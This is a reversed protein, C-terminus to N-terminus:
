SGSYSAEVPLGGLSPVVVAPTGGYGDARLQAGSRFPYLQGDYAVYVTSAATLLTGNAVPAASLSAPVPGAVPLARDAMRLIARAVGGAPVAFARGGAMVFSGGGSVLIAGNSLTSVADAAPGEDGVTPGVALGGLNPVTVVQAPDYGASLLQAETAFGHLRGDAGEVYVTPNDFAVLLTGPAPPVDPVVAGPASPVVTARDVAEVGAAQSPTAVGFGHGGAFVYLTAKFSVIAAAPYTASAPPFGSGANGSAAVSGTIALNYPGPGPPNVVGRVVFTLVDGAAITYPVTFTVSGTGGGVVPLAVDGSGAAATIDEVYYDAAATPFVTGPAASLTVTAMGAAMNTAAEVASLTYTATSSPTTPSVDVVVSGPPAVVPYAPAPVPLTDASTSVEFDTVVAPAPNYVGALSVSVLDGARVPGAVPLSAHGDALTPADVAYRAGSTRDVVLIDSAASFDTSPQSLFIDGSSFGNATQFAVTYVAQTDAVDPSELVQLHTVGSTYAFSGSCPQSAGGGFQVAFAGSAGEGPNLGQASIDVSAGASLPESLHLVVAGPGDGYASTVAPAQVQTGGPAVEDVVYAQTEATWTVTGGGSAPGARLQVTDLSNAAPYATLGNFLYTSETGAQASTASVTAGLAGPVIEQSVSPTPNASTSVVFADRSSPAPAVFRISLADGVPVHCPSALYVWLGSAPSATAARLGGACTGNADSLTVAGASGSVSSPLVNDTVDISSGADLEATAVFSVVFATPAGPVVSTPAVALDGVAGGGLGIGYDATVVDAYAPAAAGIPGPSVGQGAVVLVTGALWTSCRRVWRGGHRSSGM